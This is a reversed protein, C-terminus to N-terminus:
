LMELLRQYLPPGLILLGVILAGLATALVGAAAVDKAWKAPWSRQPSYMNVVMEVSTNIGEAALVTTICLIIVAWQTLDIELWWSLGVALAAFLLHLQFNHQTKVLVWFGSLAFSFSEARSRISLNKKMNKESNQM